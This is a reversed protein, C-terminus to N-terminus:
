YMLTLICNRPLGATGIIPNINAKQLEAASAEQARKLMEM